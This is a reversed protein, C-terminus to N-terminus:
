SAIRVAGTVRDKVFIDCRGNNDGSVLNTATSSFAIYRSDGSMSLGEFGSENNAQEGSASVSVRETTGSVRDRIFVDCTNNTDGPVLNSALSAFAAYRGDTSLAPAINWGINANGQIGSSSVSFRETTGAYMIQSLSLIAFYVLSVIATTYIRSTM